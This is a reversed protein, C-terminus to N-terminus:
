RLDQARLDLKEADFTALKYVWSGSYQNFRNIEDSRKLVAAKEELEEDSSDPAVEIREVGYFAGIKVFDQDGSSAHFVRYGSQDALEYRLTQEFELDVVAPDDALYVEDYRLRNLFSSLKGIESSEGEGKPEVLALESGEGQRAIVFDPGEIRVVEAAPVDVIERELYETPTATVSLPSSTLYVAQDDGDLRQVFTGGGSDDVAGVRLRVMPEGSANALTIEVPAAGEGALGTIAETELGRGVVRELNV